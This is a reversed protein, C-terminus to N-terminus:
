GVEEEKTKLVEFLFFFFFLQPVLYCSIKVKKEDVFGGVVEFSVYTGRSEDMEYLGKYHINLLFSCWIVKKKM